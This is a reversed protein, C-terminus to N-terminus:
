VRIHLKFFHQNQQCFWFMMIPKKTSFKVYKNKSKSVGGNEVFFFGGKHPGFRRATVDVNTVNSTFDSVDNTSTKRCIFHADFIWIGYSEHSQYLKGVHCVMFILWEHLYICLRGTFAIPIKNFFSTEIAIRSNCWKSHSTEQFMCTM